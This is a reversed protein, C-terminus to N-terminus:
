KTDILDSNTHSEQVSMNRDSKMRNQNAKYPVASTEIAM